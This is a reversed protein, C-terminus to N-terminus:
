DESSAGDRVRARLAANVSASTPLLAAIAEDETGGDELVLSCVALLHALYPIGTAKRAQTAHLEVAYAVAETFREGLVPDPTPTPQNM